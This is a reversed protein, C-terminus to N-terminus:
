LLRVGRPPSRGQCLASTSLSVALLLKCRLGPDGADCLAGAGAVRGAVRSRITVLKAELEERTAQGAAQEACMALAALAAALLRARRTASKM